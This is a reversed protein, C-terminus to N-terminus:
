APPPSGADGWFGGVVPVPGSVGGTGFATGSVGGTGFVAEAAAGAVFPPDGACGAGVAALGIAVDTALEPAAGAAAGGPTGRDCIRVLTAVEAGVAPTLTAAVPAVGDGPGAIDTTGPCAGFGGIAGVPAADGIAVVPADGIAVVADGMPAPLGDIPAAGRGAVLWAPAPAAAAGLATAFGTIDGWGGCAAAFGTVAVAACAGPFGTIDGWGGRTAVLTPTVCGAPVVCAVAACAAEFAVVGITGFTSAVGAGWAATRTPCAVIIPTPAPPPGGGIRGRAAETGACCSTCCALGAGVPARGGVGGRAGECGAASSTTALGAM